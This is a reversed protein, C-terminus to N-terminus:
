SRARKTLYTAMNAALGVILTADERTPQRGEVVHRAENSAFGWLQSLAKDLPPPLLDPHRKLIEGLTAKEDGVLDRAVAELAGMAHYIAGSLDPDPRRSLALLAEHVHNGATPRGTSSLASAAETSPM